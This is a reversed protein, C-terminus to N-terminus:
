RGSNLRVESVTNIGESLVEWLHATDPAGPLDVAMGVIAVDDEYSSAQSSSLPYSSASADIVHANDPIHKKNKSIGYAPGFNLINVSPDEASKLGEISDFLNQQVTMWNVPYVLIM